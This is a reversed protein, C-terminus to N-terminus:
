GQLQLTGQEHVKMQKGSVWALMGTTRKSNSRQSVLEQASKADEAELRLHKVINTLRKLDLIGIKKPPTEMHAKTEVGSVKALKAIEETLDHFEAKMSNQESNIKENFNSYEQKMANIRNQVQSAKERSDSDDQATEKELKNKERARKLEEQGITKPARSVRPGFNFGLESGFEELMPDAIQSRLTELPDLASQAINKITNAPKM